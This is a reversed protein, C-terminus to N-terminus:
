RSIIRHDSHSYGITTTVISRHYIQSYGITVTVIPVGFFRRLYLSKLLASELKKSLFYDRAIFIDSAIANTLDQDTEFVEVSESEKGRM